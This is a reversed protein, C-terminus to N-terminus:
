MIKTRTLKKPKLAGITLSQESVYHRLYSKDPLNDIKSGQAHALFLHAEDPKNWRHGVAGDGWKHGEEHVADLLM